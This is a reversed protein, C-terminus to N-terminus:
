TSFREQRHTCDKTHAQTHQTPPRLWLSRLVSLYSNTTIRSVPDVSANYPIRSRQVHLTNQFYVTKTFFVNRIFHHELYKKVNHKDNNINNYINNNVMNVKTVGLTHSKTSAFLRCLTVQKNVLSQLHINHELPCSVRITMTARSEHTWADINHFIQFYYGCVAILKDMFIHMMRQFTIPLALKLVNKKKALLWWGKLFVQLRTISQFYVCNFQFLLLLLYIQRPNKKGAASKVFGTWTLSERERICRDNIVMPTPRPAYMAKHVHPLCHPLPTM